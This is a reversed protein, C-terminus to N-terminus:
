QLSLRDNPIPIEMTGPQIPPEWFALFATGGGILVLLTVFLVLILKNMCGKNAEAPKAIQGTLGAM